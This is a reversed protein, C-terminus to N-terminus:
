DKIEEPDEPLIHQFLGLTENFEDQLEKVFERDTDYKAVQDLIGRYLYRFTLDFEEFVMDFDDSSFTSFWILKERFLRILDEATERGKKEEGLQYYMEPYEMSLSYHDFDEIPLKDISLDLVEVAKLTDGEIAFARSLRM